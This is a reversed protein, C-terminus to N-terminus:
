RVWGLVEGRARKWWDTLPEDASRNYLAQPMPWRARLEEIRCCLTEVEAVVLEGARARVTFAAVLPVDQGTEDRVRCDMGTPGGSFVLHRAPRDM